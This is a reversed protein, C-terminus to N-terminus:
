QQTKNLQLASERYPKNLGQITNCKKFYCEWQKLKKEEYLQKIRSKLRTSPLHNADKISTKIEVLLLLLSFKSYFLLTLPHTQVSAFQNFSFPTPTKPGKIAWSTQSRASTYGKCDQKITWIRKVHM